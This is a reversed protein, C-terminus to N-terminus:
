SRLALRMAEIVSSNMRSKCSMSANVLHASACPAVRMVSSTFQYRAACIGGGTWNHSNSSACARVSCLRRPGYPAGMDAAVVDAPGLMWAYTASGMALAGVEAVFAPYSTEAVSGLAFLWELADDETAIFGDLSAATYYQTKM